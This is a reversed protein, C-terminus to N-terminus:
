WIGPRTLAVKGINFHRSVKKPAPIVWRVPHTSPNISSHRLHHRQQTPIAGPHPPNKHNTPKSISPPLSSSNNLAFDTTYQLYTYTSYPHSHIPPHEPSSPLPPPAIITHTISPPSPTTPITAPRVAAPSEPPKPNTHTSLILLASCPIMSPSLPSLHGLLPYALPFAYVSPSGPNPQTLRSIM